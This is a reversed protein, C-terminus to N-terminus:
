PRLCCGSACARRGTLRHRNSAFVLYARDALPRILPLRTWGLLWPLGVASYAQRFVEVGTVISGDPKIGHIIRNVQERTARLRAPDFDPATIDQVNLRGRARDLRLMFAAERRCLPCHGGICITFPPTM